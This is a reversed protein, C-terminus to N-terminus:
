QPLAKTPAKKQWAAAAGKKGPVREILDRKALRLFVEKMSNESTIGTLLRAIGNKIEVHNQLYDM